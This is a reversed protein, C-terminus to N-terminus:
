ITNLRTLQLDVWIVTNMQKSSYHLWPLFNIGILSRCGGSVEVVLSHSQYLVVFVNQENFVSVIKRFRENIVLHVFLYLLV